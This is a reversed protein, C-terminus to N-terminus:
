ASYMVGASQEAFVSPRPSQECLREDLTRCFDAIRRANAGLDARGSRSVSRMDLRTQADDDLRIEIRVDDVWGFWRTESEAIIIGAEDDASVLEWRPLGGNVLSMAARWVDEFPIAYTRGRLRADTADPSTEASNESLARRVRDIM